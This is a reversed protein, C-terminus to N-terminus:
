NFIQSFDYGPVIDERTIKEKIFLNLRRTIEDIVMDIEKYIASTYNNTVQIADKFREPSPKREISYHKVYEDQPIGRMYKSHRYMEEVSIPNVYINIVYSGRLEEDDFFRDADPDSFIVVESRRTLETFPMKYTKEDLMDSDFCFAGSITNALLNSFYTKGSDPHGSVLIVLRKDLDFNVNRYKPIYVEPKELSIENVACYSKIMEILEFDNTEKYAWKCTREIQDAIQVISERYDKAKGLYGLKERWVGWMRASAFEYRRKSFEYAILIPLSQEDEPLSELRKPDELIFSMLLEETRLEKPVHLIEADLNFVRPNLFILEVIRPSRLEKKITQLTCPRKHNRGKIYNVVEQYIEQETKSM